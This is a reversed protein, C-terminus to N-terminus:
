VQVTRTGPVSARKEGLGLVLGLGKCLLLDKKAGTYSNECRQIVELKLDELKASGCLM